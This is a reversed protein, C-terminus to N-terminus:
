IRGQIKLITKTLKRSHCFIFFFVWGVYLHFSRYLLLNKCIRDPFTKVSFENKTISYSVYDWPSSCLSFPFICLITFIYSRLIDGFVAIEKRAELVVYSYTEFILSEVLNNVTYSYFWDTYNRIFNYLYM